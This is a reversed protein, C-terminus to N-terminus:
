FYINLLYCIEIQCVSHVTPCVDKFISEEMVSM